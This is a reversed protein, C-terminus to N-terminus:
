PVRVCSVPLFVPLAAAARLRPVPAQLRLLGHAGGRGVPQVPDLDPTLTLTMMMACVCVCM